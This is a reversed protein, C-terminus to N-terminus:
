KKKLERGIIYPPQKNSMSKLAVVEVRKIKRPDGDISNMEIQVNFNDATQYQHYGKQDFQYKVNVVRGVNYKKHFNKKRQSNIERRFKNILMVKVEDSILKKKKLSADNLINTLIRKIQNQTLDCSKAVVILSDEINKKNEVM